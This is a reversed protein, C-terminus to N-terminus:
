LRADAVIDFNYMDAVGSTAASFSLGKTGHNFTTVVGGNAWTGTYYSAAGSAGANNYMTLTAGARLSVPYVLHGVCFSGTRAGALYITNGGASVATGPAMGYDYSKFYYRQCTLLEQDYPRMILPSRAASPAEIGPLVVLGTMEFTNTNVSAINFGGSSAVRIIFDIGLGNDVLWTGTTQAPFTATVFQQVGPSAITVSATPFSTGASNACILPLTGAISSKLWFGVTLPQATATGWALRAIRWGEIRHRIDIVDSGMSAQATIMYLSLQKAYGPFISSAQIMGFTATGGSKLGLWGDVVYKSLPGSPFNVASAGNEQSVEMSGNFQMGSYAMADFPAAYISKRAAVADVLNPLTWKEGDWLYNGYAQGVTPSNPFDFAM